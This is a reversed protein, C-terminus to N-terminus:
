VTCRLSFGDNCWDNGCKVNLDAGTRMELLPLSSGMVLLIPAAKFPNSRCFRDRGIYISVHLDLHLLTDSPSIDTDNTSLLSQVIKIKRPRWKGPRSPTSLGFRIM